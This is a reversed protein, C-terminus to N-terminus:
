NYKPLLSFTYGRVRMEGVFNEKFEKKINNGM